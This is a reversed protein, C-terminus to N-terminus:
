FWQDHEIKWHELQKLSKMIWPLLKNNLKAELTHVIQKLRLDISLRKQLKMETTPTNSISINPDTEKTGLRYAEKRIKNKNSWYIKNTWKAYCSITPKKAKDM